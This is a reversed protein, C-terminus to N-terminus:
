GQAKPAACAFHYDGAEVALKATGNEYGLIKVGASAAVPTGGESIPANADCPVMVTATTNAPVVVHWDFQGDAIKWDSVITGYVTDHTARASTLDGLIHPEFVITKFGPSGIQIGALYKYFWASVDGFMVHDRSDDNDDKDTWREWMSTAGKDIWYGYSPMSRTQLIRYAVDGCGNDALTRLLYKAGLIGVDMHYDQAKVEALLADIVAPKNQEEVLDQYLACSQATLSGNDYKGTKADYFKQNFSVKIRAAQESYKLADADKGLLKAMKSLLISDAYYYATSTLANSTQTKAPLWDGLGYDVINDKARSSLYNMYSVLHPYHKEVVTQDGRYQYLYWTILPYASDWSPGINYGWGSTPIIASFSGDPKQEDAIDQLWKEYNAAGDFNYLGMEAALHADGTWGNKERTPCDTPISHWNNRYSWLAIRQIDNLLPNSCAFTGAEDFATHMVLGRFNDVTPTGPFGKVEVYRFGHYTFRPNWVERGRGKFTYIDTQFKANKDRRKLFVDINNANLTGDPHLKEACRLSVETGAPGSALMQPVGAFNQGMDVIFTGPTPQTVKIPTLTQTVKIAPAIQASLIGKVPEVSEAKAWQSDDYNATNWGTMERRADYHTGSSISDFTIPGTAAKWNGDSSVTQVRGDEYEVRMELRMKPRARWSATDFDWVSLVHDDFHGTGLIVGIANNGNKLYDTVDHAVYLSRRDYRTWGPDLVHDGVKHGNLSMEYYGLGCIYATARKVKGNVAFTRRLYPAPLGPIITGNAIAGWPGEGTPALVQAARWNADNFDATFWNPTEQDTTKWTADSSITLQSGGSGYGVLQAAVGAPNPVNDATDSANTVALAIINEGVKLDRTVDIAERKQWGNESQGVERGNLYIAAKNDAAVRLMANQIAAKQAASVDFKQRFWRTGVPAAVKPDGTTEPFWVWSAGELTPVQETQAGENPAAYGLWGGHWDAKNLLGMQWSDADSQASQGNPTWVRVKWFCMQNSQLPKGKYAIQTSDASKVQGSDWLDAKGTNLLEPKTAVWIQYTAQRAGRMTSDLQWSLLPAPAEIGRATAVGECLLHSIHM